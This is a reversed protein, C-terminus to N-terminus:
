SDPDVLCKHNNRREDVRMRYSSLVTRWRQDDCPTDFMSNSRRGAVHEAPLLCHKLKFGCHSSRKTSAHLWGWAAFNCCENECVCVCLIGLLKRTSIQKHTMEGQVMQVGPQECGGFWWVLRVPMHVVVGQKTPWYINITVWLWLLKDPHKDQRRRDMNTWRISLCKSKFRKKKALAEKQPQLMNICNSVYEPQHNTEYKKGLQLCHNTQFQWATTM